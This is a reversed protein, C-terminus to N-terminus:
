SKVSFKSDLRVAAEVTRLIDHLGPSEPNLDYLKGVALLAARDYNPKIALIKDVTESHQKLIRKNYDAISTRGKM